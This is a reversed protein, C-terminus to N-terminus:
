IFMCIYPVLLLVNDKEPIPMPQGTLFSTLVGKKNVPISPDQMM